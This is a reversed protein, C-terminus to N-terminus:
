EFESGAPRLEIDYPPLHKLLDVLVDLSPTEVLYFGGLGEFAEAYPGETLTTQGDTGTRMVTASSPGALAEGALIQVGDRGACARDFAEFMAMGEAQQEDTLSNWPPYAGDGALMVLYKM